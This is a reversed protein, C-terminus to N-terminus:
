VSYLELKAGMIEEAEGIHEKASNLDKFVLAKEPTSLSTYGEYYDKVLKGNEKNKFAFMKNVGTHKLQQKIIYINYKAVALKDITKSRM